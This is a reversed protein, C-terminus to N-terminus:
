LEDFCLGQNDQGVEENTNHGLLVNRDDWLIENTGMLIFVVRIPLRSNLVDAAVRHFASGWCM